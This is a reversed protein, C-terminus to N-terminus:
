IGREATFPSRYARVAEADYAKEVRRWGNKYARWSAKDLILATQRAKLFERVRPFDGFRLAAAM